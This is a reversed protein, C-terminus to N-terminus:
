CSIVSPTPIPPKTPQKSIGDAPKVPDRVNVKLVIQKSIPGLGKCPITHRLNAVELSSASGHSFVLGLNLSETDIGASYNVMPPEIFLEVREPNFDVIRSGNEDDKSRKPASLLREIASGKKLHTYTVVRRPYIAPINKPPLDM